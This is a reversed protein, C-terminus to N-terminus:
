QSPQGGFVSRWLSPWNEAWCCVHDFGPQIEIKPRTAAPFLDAFGQVLAPTINRDNLGVFHWQPIRELKASEDAPNLSGVLPSVKHHHTWAAHDLNGAITILGAIDDRRAAVLAAVAAGGSYGVLLLRHAQYRQKLKEATCSTAAIVEASFRESTWYRSPCGTQEADVYQCPRAVYVANGAPHSLAL